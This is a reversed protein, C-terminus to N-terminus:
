NERKQIQTRFFIHTIKKGEEFFILAEDWCPGVDCKM